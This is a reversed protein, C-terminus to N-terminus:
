PLDISVSTKKLERFIIEFYKGIECSWAEGCITGSSRPHFKTWSGTATTWWVLRLRGFALVYKIERKSIYRRRYLWNLVPVWVGMLGLVIVVVLAIWIM